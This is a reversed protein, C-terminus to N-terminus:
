FTVNVGLLFTRPRPYINNDIGGSIEPDLGKYNTIFFLNQGTLSFRARVKSGLFEQVNYGVSVNDLRFFSANEIYHDSFFQQMVFHTDNLLRPMNRFHQSQDFIFQYNARDSAVNNYLYNAINARGAAFFDWDKYNISTNLGLWILPAPDQFQYRNREDSIVQGGQGTRDAYLGEIPRGDTDYIQQFVFFSNVPYGIQQNMITNGTGGAIGGAPVGPFDDAGAAVLRTIENVNYTLNGGVSWTFGQRSIPVYNITAEFGKNVLSGVNTTLFNSFNSGAPIRIFNLMDRTERYYVDFSGFVKDGWLGYDLGANWTVTEEWKINADYADPRLTNFFQNGFQYMATQESRRMIPLYPYFPGIDQQGTVGWSARLKLHSISNINKIFDEEEVKWALAVAPFLGWRNGPAFRSSGDSRLTFTALYKNNLTYNLRGFFSILYLENAFSLSDSVIYEPSGLEANNRNWNYGERKFYQWSYGATADIVHKDGLKKNYNFYSEFLQSTNRATYENLRGAGGGIAFAADTPAINSGESDFYDFGMNVNFRLGPLFDFKYDAQVNGIARNVRSTNQTQELMAVPNPTAITTPNGNVDMMGNVNDDTWTFYGGWRNNGNRVPQTPDMAIANGVAGEDGFNHRNHSGTFNVNLKLRDNLFKPDLSFSLSNRRMNTTRLIGDQDTYGISVRYPLAETAGSFTVNHDHTFATRFIERQWDTNEQGLRFLNEPNLGVRIDESNAVMDAMERIEDGSFVDYYRMPSSVSFNSNLSVEMPRGSKGKKTTIIIVGNSARSGYIATASADKLVTFTEIDNPNITALINPSGSGGGGDVPFGDIVILPDNNASLSSGGRIRITSGAGPAGGTSTIQVGAVKGLLLDQPSSVVGKNFDKAGVALVSGTLDEKKVEGYGIVVIEELATVDSKLIINITSRNGVTEQQTIYGVFSFTLIDEPSAQISYQGNIDTVTGLTTGKIVVNVGPMGSGDPGETVRGTVTQQQAVAPGALLAWYFITLLSIALYKYKM